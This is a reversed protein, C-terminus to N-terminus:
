AATKSRRFAGLGLMLAALAGLQTVSPEPIPILDGMVSFALSDLLLGKGPDSTMTLTIGSSVSLQQWTYTSEIWTGGNAGPVVEKTQQSVLQAGAISWGVNPSYPFGGAASAFQNVVVTYSLPSEPTPDYIDMDMQVGGPGIDWVGTPTGFSLGPIVVAGPFYGEGVGVTIAATGVAPFPNTDAPAAIAPNDATAFDWFMTTVTDAGLASAAMGCATVGALIHNRKM